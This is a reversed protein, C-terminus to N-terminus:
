NSPAEGPPLVVIRAPRAEDPSAKPVPALKDAPVPKVAAATAPPKPGAGAALKRKEEPTLAQYAEWKAKKEDPSVQQTEGFNLRALTRQQPSLAAWERMRSHLKVQEAPPLRHFNQALATWKRKHPESLTEWTTALPALAQRQAASLENWTPRTPSAPATGTRAPGSAPVGATQAHAALTTVVMALLLLHRQALSM